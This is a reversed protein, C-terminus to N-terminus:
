YKWIYFPFKLSCHGKLHKHYHKLSWRRKTRGSFGNYSSTKWIVRSLAKMQLYSRSIRLKRDSRQNCLHGECRLCCICNMYWNPSCRCSGEPLEYLLYSKQREIIFTKIFTLNLCRSDKNCNGILIVKAEKYNLIKHINFELM